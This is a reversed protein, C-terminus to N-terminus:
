RALHQWDDAIGFSEEIYYRGLAGSTYQHTTPLKEFDAHGANAAQRIHIHLDGAEFRRSHTPTIAEHYYRIGTLDDRSTLRAFGATVTGVGELSLHAGYVVGDLGDTHVDNHWGLDAIHDERTQGKLRRSAILVSSRQSPFFRSRNRFSHVDLPTVSIGGIYTFAQAVKKRFIKTYQDSRATCMSADSKRFSSLDGLDEFHITIMPLNTGLETFCKQAEDQSTADDVTFCPINTLEPSKM